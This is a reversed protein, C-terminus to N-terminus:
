QNPRRRARMDLLPVAPFKNVRKLEGALFLDRRFVKSLEDAFVASDITADKLM